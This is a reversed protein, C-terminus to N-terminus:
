LWVGTKEWKPSGKQILDQYVAMFVLAIWSHCYALYMLPIILLTELNLEDEYSDALAVEAM